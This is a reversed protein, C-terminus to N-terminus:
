SWVNSCTSSYSIFESSNFPLVFLGLLYKFRALRGLSRGVTNMTVPTNRSSPALQRVNRNCAEFNTLFCVPKSKGHFITQSVKTNIETSVCDRILKLCVNVMHCIPLCIEFWGGFFNSRAISNSFKICFYASTQLSACDFGFLVSIISAHFCVRFGVCDRPTVLFSIMMPMLKFVARAM